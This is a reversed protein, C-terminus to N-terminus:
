KVAWSWHGKVIKVVKAVEPETKTKEGVEVYGQKMEFNNLISDRKQGTKVEIDSLLHIYKGSSGLCTNLLRLLSGARYWERWWREDAILQFLLSLAM